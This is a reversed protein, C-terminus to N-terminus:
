RSLGISTSRALAAARTRADRELAELRRNGVPRDGVVGGVLSVGLAAWSALWRDRRLRRVSRLAPRSPRCSRSPRCARRASSSAAVVTLGGARLGVVRMSFGSDLRSASVPQRDIGRVREIREVTVLSRERVEGAARAATRPREALRARRRDRRRARRLTVELAALLQEREALEVLREVLVLLREVGLRQGVEQEVDALAVAVEAVVVLRDEAELLVQLELGVRRVLVLDLLEISSSSSLFARPSPASARRCSASGGGGGGGTSLVRRDVLLPPEPGADRDDADRAADADVRRGLRPRASSRGRCCRTRSTIRASSSTRSSREGAAGVVRVQDDRDVRARRHM